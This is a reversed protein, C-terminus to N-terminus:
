NSLTNLMNFYPKRRQKVSKNKFEYKKITEYDTIFKNNDNRSNMDIHNNSNADIIIKPKIIKLKKVKNTVPAIDKSNLGLNDTNYRDFIKSKTMNNSKTFNINDKNIEDLSSFTNFNNMLRPRKIFKKKENTYLRKVLNKEINRLLKNYKLEDRSFYTKTKKIPSINDNNRLFDTLKYSILPKSDTFLGGGNVIIYKDRGSGNAHYHFNPTKISATKMHVPIKTSFFTNTQYGSNQAKSPFNYNKYFGANDYAIYRDRGSGDPFYPVHNTKFTRYLAM